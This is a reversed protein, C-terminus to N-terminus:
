LREELRGTSGCCRYLWTNRLDWALVGINSAQIMPRVKKRILGKLGNM